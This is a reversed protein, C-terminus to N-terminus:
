YDLPQRIWFRTKKKQLDHRCRYIFAKGAWGNAIINVVSGAALERQASMCIEGSKAKKNVSRLLSKTLKNMDAASSIKESITQMYTKGTTVNKDNAKGTETANSVQASSYASPSNDTFKTEVSPGLMLTKVAERNEMTKEDYLCLIKNFVLFSAGALRCREALFVLDSVGRQQVYKFKQDSLGYTKLDLGHEDAIKKAIQSLALNEFSRSRKSFAKKPVSYATMTYAGCEPKLSEIFMKGSDVVGDTIRVIDSEKPAWGVWQKKTDAFKLKLTDAQGEAFMEYLCESVSISSTIDKDNIYVKLGGPQRQAADETFSLYIDADIIDGDAAILNAQMEVSTLMYSVGGLKSGLLLSTALGAAGELTLLNKWDSTQVTDLLNNALSLASGSSIFLPASVGKLKDLLEYTIRPYGGTAKSVHISFGCTQLERGIVRTTGNEHDDELKVGASCSFESVPMFNGPIPGFPILQWIVQTGFM